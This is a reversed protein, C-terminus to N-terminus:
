WEWGLKGTIALKDLDWEPKFSAGEFLTYQGGIGITFGSGIRLGMEASAGITPVLAKFGLVAGINGFFKTKAEKEYLGKFYAIDDAQKQNQAYIAAIIEEKDSSDDAVLEFDSYIKELQTILETLQKSTLRSNNQLDDLLTSLADSTEGPVIASPQALDQTPAEQPASAEAQAQPVPVTTVSEKPASTTSSSQSSEKKPFAWAYSCVLLLVLFLAVFQKTTKRM